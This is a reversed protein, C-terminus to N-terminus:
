TLRLRAIPPRNRPVPQKLFDNQNLRNM